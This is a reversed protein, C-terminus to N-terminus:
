GTVIQFCYSMNLQKQYVQFTSTLVALKMVARREKLKWGIYCMANNPSVMEYITLNYIFLQREYYLLSVAGTPLQLVSQLDFTVVHIKSDHKM